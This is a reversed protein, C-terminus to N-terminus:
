SHMMVWGECGADGRFCLSPFSEEGAERIVGLLARLLGVRCPAPPVVYGWLVWSTVFGLKVVFGGGRTHRGAERVQALAEVALGGAKKTMGAAM